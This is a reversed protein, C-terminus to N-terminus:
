FMGGAGLPLPAARPHHPAGWASPTAMVSPRLSAPINTFSQVGFDHRRMKRGEGRGIGWKWQHGTHVSMAGETEKSKNEKKWSVDLFINSCTNDSFNSGTNEEPIKITEPKVNLHKILKSNIKTYPTIFHDLIIRKCTGTWNEWLM